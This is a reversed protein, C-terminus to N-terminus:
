RSLTRAFLDKLEAFHRDTAAEDYVVTDTMTYGHRAGPYVATTAVLGAEALARDLRAVQPREMSSDRDAHGFLFEARAQPLGLHPSDPDDTALRGGHFGACAAVLDPHGAAARMALRAGMCYGVVGVPTRVRPQSTLAALYATLDADALPATLAAIRPRAHVFFARRREDSDLDHGPSTQEATGSRYFVNPALVVYGWSAITEAMEILRPRLGLADMLLLVGPHAATDDPASLTAEATGDPVPVCLRTTVIAM